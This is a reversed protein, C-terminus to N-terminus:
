KSSEEKQAVKLQEPAKRVAFRALQMPGALFTNLAVFAVTAAGLGIM